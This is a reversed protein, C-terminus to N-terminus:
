YYTSLFKLTSLQLQLKSQNITYNAISQPLSKFKYAYASYSMGQASLLANFKTLYDSSSSLDKSYNIAGTLQQIKRNVSDILDFLQGSPNKSSSLLDLLSQYSDMANSLEQKALDKAHINITGTYQPNITTCHIAGFNNQLVEECYSQATTAVKYERIPKLLLLESDRSNLSTNIPFLAGLTLILFGITGLSKLFKIPKTSFM